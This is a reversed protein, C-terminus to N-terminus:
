GATVDPTGSVSMAGAEGDYRTLDIGIEICRNKFHDLMTADILDPTRSLELVVRHPDRLLIYGHERSGKPKTLVFRHRTLVAMREGWTRLARNESAAYGAEFVFLAPDDVEIFGPGWDRCWLVLYLGGANAKDLQNIIEIVLPLLRPPRAYGKTSKDKADVNFIEHIANPWLEDRKQLRKAQAQNPPRDKTATRSM